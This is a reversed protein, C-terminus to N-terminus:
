SFIALDTSVEACSINCKRQNLFHFSTNGSILPVYILLEDSTGTSSNSGIVSYSGDSVLQYVTLNMASSSTLAYTLNVTRTSSIATLSYGGNDILDWDNTFDQFGGSEELQIICPVSQCLATYTSSTFLITSNQSIVFYYIVDEEVLHVITDGEPNQKSREVERFLGEGIYKRFTHVIINDVVLGDRDFYNFLFSTSDTTLLDMLNISRNTLSNIVQTNDLTGNDLYFFENVHDDSDFGIIFDIVYESNNLLGSPVCVTANNQNLWQNSYYWKNGSYSTLTLDIEINTAEASVNIPVNTEEDKLTM